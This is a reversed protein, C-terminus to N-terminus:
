EADFDLCVYLIFLLYSFMLYESNGGRAVRLDGPKIDWSLSSEVGGGQM